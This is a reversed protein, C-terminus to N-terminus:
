NDSLPSISCKTTKVACLSIQGKRTYVLTSIYSQIDAQIAYHDVREGQLRSTQPDFGPSILRESGVNFRLDWPGWQFYAKSRFSEHAIRTFYSVYM